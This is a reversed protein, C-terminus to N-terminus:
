LPGALLAPYIFFVAASILEPLPDIPTFSAWVGPIAIAGLTEIAPLGIFTFLYWVLGVRWQVIRWLLRGVGDRGETVATVVFASPHPGLVHRDRDPGPLEVPQRAISRCCGAETGRSCSCRGCWGRDPM